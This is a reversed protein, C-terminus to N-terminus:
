MSRWEFDYEKLAGSESIKVEKVDLSESGMNLEFQQYSQIANSFAEMMQTLTLEDEKIKDLASTMGQISKALTQHDSM